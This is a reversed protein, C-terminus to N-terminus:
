RKGDDFKGYHPKPSATVTARMRGATGGDCLNIEATIQERTLAIASKAKSKKADRDGTGTFIWRNACPISGIFLLRQVLNM